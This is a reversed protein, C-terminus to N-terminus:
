CHASFRFNFEIVPCGDNGYENKASASLALSHSIYSHPYVTICFDGLPAGSHQNRSMRLRHGGHMYERTSLMRGFSAWCQQRNAKNPANISKRQNNAHPICAFYAAPVDFFGTYARTKTHIDIEDFCEFVYICPKKMGYICFSWRMDRHDKQM